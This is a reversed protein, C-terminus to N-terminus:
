DSGAFASSLNALLRDEAVSQRVQQELPQLTSGVDGNIKRLAEGIPRVMSAATDRTRIGIFGTSQPLPGPFQSLPIYIAPRRAVAGTM